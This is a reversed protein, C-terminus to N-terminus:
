FILCRMLAPIDEVSRILTVLGAILSSAIVYISYITLQSTINSLLDCITVTEFIILSNPSKIFFLRILYYSFFNFLYKYLLSFIPFLFYFQNSLSFFSFIIHILKIFYLPFLSFLYNTSNTSLMKRKDPCYNRFLFYSLFFASSLLYISASVLLFLYICYIFCSNSHNLLLILLIFIILNM